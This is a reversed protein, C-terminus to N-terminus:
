HSNTRILARLKERVEGSIVESKSLAKIAKQIETDAHPLGGNGVLGLTAEAAEQRPFHSFYMTAYHRTLSDESQLLALMQDSAREVPYKAMVSAYGLSAGKDQTVQEWKSSEFVIEGVEPRQSHYLANILPGIEGKAGEELLKKLTGVAEPTGHQSLVWYAAHRIPVEKHHVLLQATKVARSDQMYRLGPNLANVRWGPDEKEDLAIASLAPIAQRFAGWGLADIAAYRRNNQQLLPLLFDSAREEDLAKLRWGNDREDWYDRPQGFSAVVEEWTRTDVKAFCGAVTSSNSDQAQVPSTGFIASIILSLFCVSKLPLNRM